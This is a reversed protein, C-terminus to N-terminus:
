THDRRPISTSTILGASNTSIALHLYISSITLQVRPSIIVPETYVPSLILFRPQSGPKLSPGRTSSTAMWQSLSLSLSQALLLLIPTPPAIFELKSVSFKPWGHSMRTSSLFSIQVWFYIWSLWWCIWSNSGTWAPHKYRWLVSFWSQFWQSCQCELLSAYLVSKSCGSSLQIM